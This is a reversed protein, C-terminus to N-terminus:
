FQWILMSIRPSIGLIAEKDQTGNESSSNILKIALHLLEDVELGLLSDHLCRLLITLFLTHKFLIILM